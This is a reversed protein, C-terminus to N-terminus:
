PQFSSEIESIFIYFSPAGESVREKRQLLILRKFFATGHHPADPNVNIDKLTPVGGFFLRYGEFPDLSGDNFFIKRNAEGSM